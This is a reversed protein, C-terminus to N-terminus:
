PTSSSPPPLTSNTESTGKSFSPNLGAGVPLWGMGVSVLYRPLYSQCITTVAALPASILGFAVLVSARIRPKDAEAGSMAWSRDRPTSDAM